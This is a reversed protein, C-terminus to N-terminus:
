VDVHLGLQHTIGLVSHRTFAYDFSVGSLVFGIGGSFQSPEVGTGGRLVVMALVRYQFGLCLELPYLIDKVLDVAIELDAAPKFSVGTRYMQPMREEGEGIVPSNINSASFGLNFQANIHLLFGAQVGIMDDAGYGEIALHFYRMSMGAQLGPVIEWGGGVGAVIERYLSFGTHAVMASYTGWSTSHIHLLAGSALESLGFRHPSFCFSFSSTTHEALLSPNTIVGWCSGSVAASAGGMGVATPGPMGEQFAAPTQRSFVVFCLVLKFTRM